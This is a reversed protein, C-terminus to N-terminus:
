EQFFITLITFITLIQCTIRFYSEENFIVVAQFHNVYKMKQQLISNMRTKCIILDAWQVIVISIFFATQCTYEIIKRSEYTQSFNKCYMCKSYFLTSLSPKVTYINLDMRVWIQLVYGSNALATRWTM